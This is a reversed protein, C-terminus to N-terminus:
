SNPIRMPPEPFQVALPECNVRALLEWAIVEPLPLLGIEIITNPVCAYFLNGCTAFIGAIFGAVIGYSLVHCNVEYINGTPFSYISIYIGFFATTNSHLSFPRAFSSGLGLRFSVLLVYITVSERIRILRNDEIVAITAFAVLGSVQCPFSVLRVVIITSPVCAYFLNGCTATLGTTIFGTLRSPIYMSINITIVIYTVVIRKGFTYSCQRFQCSIRVDIQVFIVSCSCSNIEPGITPRFASFGNRHRLIGSGIAILHENRYASLRNIHALISITGQLNRSDCQVARFFFGTVSGLGFMCVVENTRHHIPIQFISHEHVAVRNLSHHFFFVETSVLEFNKRLIGRPLVLQVEACDISFTRRRIDEFTCLIVIDLYSYIINALPLNLHNFTLKTNGTDERIRSCYRYLHLLNGNTSVARTLSRLDIEPSAITNCSRLPIRTGVHYSIGLVFTPITIGELLNNLSLTQVKDQCVFITLRLVQVGCTIGAVIDTYNCLSLVELVALCRYGNLLVALFSGTVLVIRFKCIRATTDQQSDSLAFAVVENNLNLVVVFGAIRLGTQVEHPYISCTCRIVVSGVTRVISFICFLDAYNNLEVSRLLGVDEVIDVPCIGAPTAFPSDIAEGNGSSFKAVTTVSRLGTIM